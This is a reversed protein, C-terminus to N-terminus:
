RKEIRLQPSRELLHALRSFEGKAVDKLHPLKSDPWVEGKDLLRQVLWYAMERSGRLPEKAQSRKLGIMFDKVTMSDPQNVIALQRILERLETARITNSWLIAAAVVNDEDLELPILFHDM